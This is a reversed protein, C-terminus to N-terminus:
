RQQDLSLMVISLLLLGAGAIGSIGLTEGFLIWALAAAVVPELMSVVSATTASVSRLGRQFLGYAFATPVLGLYLTLLWGNFTHVTEIGSMLNILTLILTGGAFMFTSVQLPHSEAALWRGGVVSSSYTLAAFCSLILGATWNAQDDPSAPTGVLLVGGILTCALALVVRRTLPELKLVVSLSAVVLPCLCITLLTAITVGSARVAGFYAAQSLAVLMGNFLMLALDRRRLRFLARGLTQWAVIGLVFTAIVMRALNLFLSSPQDFTYIAQMAIGITGWLLAAVTVSALGGTQASLVKQM